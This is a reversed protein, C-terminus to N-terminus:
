IIVRVMMFTPMMSPNSCSDPCARLPNDMAFELCETMGFRYELESLVDDLVTISETDRLDNRPIDGFISDTEFTNM